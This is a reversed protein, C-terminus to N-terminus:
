SFLLRYNRGQLKEEHTKHQKFLPDQALLEDEAETTKPTNAKIGSGRKGPIDGSSPLLPGSAPVEKENEM